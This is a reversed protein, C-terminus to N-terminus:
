PFRASERWRRWRTGTIYGIMEEAARKKVILYPRMGNLVKFVDSHNSITLRFREKHHPKERGKNAIRGCMIFQQVTRTSEECTNDIRLQVTSKLKDKHLSGEGDFFGAVCGWNIRM